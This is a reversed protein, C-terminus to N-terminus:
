FASQIHRLRELGDRRGLKISIVDFRLKGVPGRRSLYEAAARRINRAKRPTIAEEPEGFHNGRRAKVEVFVTLDGRRAIIDIEGRRSRWNREMIWFGNGELYDCAIDEGLRGVAKKQGRAVM